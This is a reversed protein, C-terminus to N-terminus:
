AHSIGSCNRRKDNFEVGKINGFKKIFSRNGTIGSIEPPLPAGEAIKGRIYLCTEDFCFATFSDEAGIIESPRIGFEASMAIVNIIRASKVFASWIM